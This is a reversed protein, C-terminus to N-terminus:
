SVTTLLEVENNFHPCLFDHFDRMMILKARELIIMGVAFPKFMKAVKAKRFTLVVDNEIIKFKSFSPDRAYLTLSKRNRHIKCELRDRTNEISKGFQFPFFTLLCFYQYKFAARVMINSTFKYRNKFVKSQSNARRKTVEEIYPKVFAKQRFRIACHVKKLILGKSLYYKLNSYFCIYNRRPRFHAVQKVSKYSSSVYKQSEPSLDQYTICETVPALPYEKHAPEKHLHEPYDLDVELIYGYPQDDTWSQWGRALLEPNEVWSYEGIPLPMQQAAGQLYFFFYCM